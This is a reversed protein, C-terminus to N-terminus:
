TACFAAMRSDLKNFGFAANTDILNKVIHQITATALPRPPESVGRMDADGLKDM